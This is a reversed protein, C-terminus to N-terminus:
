PLPKVTKPTAKLTWGANMTANTLNEVFFEIPSWSTPVDELLGTQTGAGASGAFAVTGVFKGKFSAGPTPADNTGDIDLNRAYVSFYNSASAISAAMSGTLVLDVSTYNSHMSTALTGGTIIAGSSASAGSSQLTVQALTGWVAENAM